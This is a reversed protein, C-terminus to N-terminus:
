ISCLTMLLIENHECASTWQFIHALLYFGFGVGAVLVSSITCFFVEPMECAVWVKFM